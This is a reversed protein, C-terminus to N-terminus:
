ARVGKRRLRKAVKGNVKPTVRRISGSALRCYMQNDMTRFVLTGNLTRKEIPVFVRRLPDLSPTTVAASAGHPQTDMPSGGGAIIDYIM